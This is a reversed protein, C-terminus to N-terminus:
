HLIHLWCNDDPCYISLMGHIKSVPKITNAACIIYERERKLQLRVLQEKM